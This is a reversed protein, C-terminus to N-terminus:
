ELNFQHTRESNTEAAGFIVEPIGIKCHFNGAGRERENPRGIACHILARRENCKHRYNPPPAFRQSICNSM